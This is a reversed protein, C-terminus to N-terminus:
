DGPDRRHGCEICQRSKPTRLVKGCQSCPPGCLSIRHHLIALHNSEALGTMESYLRRMPEFRANVLAVVDANPARCGEKVDESCRRHADELRRFEVEDFM